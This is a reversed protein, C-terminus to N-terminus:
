RRDGGLTASVEETRRLTGHPLTEILRLTILPPNTDTRGFAGTVDESGVAFPQRAERGNARTIREMQGERWQYIVHAGGPMHLILCSPGRALETLRDPAADAQAVDARFQDALEARLTLGRLTAAGVKDAGLAAILLTVGLVLAMSLAWMVVCM